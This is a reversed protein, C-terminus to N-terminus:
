AHHPRLLHDQRRPHITTGNAWATATVIALGRGRESDPDAPQASPPTPSADTVDCTIATRGSPLAQERITLGISTGGAHEAANAVLESTLLEADDSM